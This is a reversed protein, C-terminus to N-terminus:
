ELNARILTSVYWVMAVERMRSCDQSTPGELPKDVKTVLSSEVRILM